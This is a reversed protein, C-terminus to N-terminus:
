LHKRGEVSVLNNSRRSALLLAAQAPSFRDLWYNRLQDGWIAIAAVLFAGLAIAIQIGLNIWAQFATIQEYPSM